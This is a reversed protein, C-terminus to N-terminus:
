DKEKSEKAPSEAGNELVKATKADVGVEVTKGHSVIDFSYRLGSGGAEKELEQDKIQGPRAKLAIVRAEVLSVTAQDALNHGKFKAPLPVASATTAALCVILAISLKM